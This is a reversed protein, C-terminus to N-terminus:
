KREVYVYPEYDISVKMTSLSGDPSKVELYFRAPAYNECVCDRAYRNAVVEAADQADWATVTVAYDDGDEPWWVKYEGGTEGYAKTRKIM